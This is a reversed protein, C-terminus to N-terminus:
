PNLNFTHHFYSLRTSASPKKWSLIKNKICSLLKKDQITTSILQAKLTKGDPGTKWFWAMSGKLFPDDKLASHYCIKISPQLSKIEAPSLIAPKKENQQDLEEDSPLHLQIGADNAEFDLGNLFSISPSNTDITINILSEQNLWTKTDSKEERQKKYNLASESLIEAVKYMTQENDLENFVKIKSLEENGKNPNKADITGYNNWDYTPDERFETTIKRRLDLSLNLGFHIDEIKKILSVLNQQFSVGYISPLSILNLNENQSKENQDARKETLAEIKHQFQEQTKKSIELSSPYIYGEETPPFGLFTLTLQRYFIITSTIYKTRDLKLKLAEPSYRINNADIFPLTFIDELEEFSKPSHSPSLMFGAIIAVTILVSSFFAIPFTTKEYKDKVLISSLKSKYEYTLPKVKKSKKTSEIKILITLDKYNIAAYDGIELDLPIPQAKPTTFKLLAGGSVILGTFPKPFTFLVKRDKSIKLIEVDEFIPYFPILLEGKTPSLVLTTKKDIPKTSECIPHGNQLVRILVNPINKGQKM